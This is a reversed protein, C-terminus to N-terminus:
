IQRRDYEDFRAKLARFKELRAAKEQPTMAALRAAERADAEQKRAAREHRARGVAMSHHIDHLAKLNEEFSLEMKPRIRNCHPHDHWMFSLASDLALDQAVKLQDDAHSIWSLAEPCAMVDPACCGLWEAFTRNWAENNGYCRDGYGLSWNMRRASDKVGGRASDVVVLRTTPPVVAMRADLESDRRQAALVVRWLRPWDFSLHHFGHVWACRYCLLMVARLEAEALGEHGPVRWSFFAEMQHTWLSMKSGIYCMLLRVSDEDGELLRDRIWLTFDCAPMLSGPSYGADLFPHDPHSWGRVQGWLQELAPTM